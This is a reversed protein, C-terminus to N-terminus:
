IVKLLTVLLVDYKIHYFNKNMTFLFEAIFPATAKFLSLVVSTTNYSYNVKKIAAATRCIQNLGAEGPGRGEVKTRWFKQKRLYIKNAIPLVL